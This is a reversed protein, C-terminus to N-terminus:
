VLRTRVGPGGNFPDQPTPDQALLDSFEMPRTLASTRVVLEDAPILAPIQLDTRGRFDLADIPTLEPFTGGTIFAGVPLRQEIFGGGTPTLVVSGTGWSGVAAAGPRITVSLTREQGASLSFSAPSVEIDLPGESSVSWSGAGLARVTRQFICEVECNDSAIGPLNLDGPSGGANPNAAQFQGSGVPLFLGIRAARDVRVNGAGRDVTTAVSGDENSNVGPDATTELASIVENVGWGPNATRLLLAAGTVHPASMSTGTLFLLSNAGDEGAALVNTGPATVNPKMVNPAFAAPGRSSSSNIIGGFAPNVLRAAGTLRGSHNSGGALWDRLRDGDQDGLHTAPLCHQDNNTSEGEADTNALIMGAAGADLVNRGKEIRGYTGRDCVVIQGNFTGPPFPNTAGTNDACTPGLEAPGEGCLANGFDGAYVIPLQSTGGTLGQGTLTGLAFAGGFTDTLQNGLLRDHTSNAISFV